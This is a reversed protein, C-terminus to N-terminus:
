VKSRKKLRIKFRERIVTINDAPPEQPAAESRVAEDAHQKLEEPVNKLKALMPFARAEAIASADGEATNDAFGHAVADEASLWTEAEMIALVEDKPKGSRAAYIDAMSAGVTDLTDAMQRLDAANGGAMMWPNHLMMLSGKGMTISDGAMAVISASSAAVGDVFVAIPKKQARLLNYIAVGEFAAGGTSNIRASINSFKGAADIQKQVSAATIGEGTWFNEGIDGYISLELMDSKVAAYIGPKRM